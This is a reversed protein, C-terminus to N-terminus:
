FLQFSVLQWEPIENASSGVYRLNVIGIGEIVTIVVNDLYIIEHAPYYKNNYLSKSNPGNSYDYGQPNQEGLNGLIYVKMDTGLRGFYIKNNVFDYYIADIPMTTNLIISVQKGLTNWELISEEIFMTENGINKIEKKGASYVNITKIYNWKNRIDLPFFGSKAGIDKPSYVKNPDDKVPNSDDSCSSLILISALILIIKKM